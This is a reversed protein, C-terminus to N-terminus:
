TSEERSDLVRSLLRKTSIQLRGKSGREDVLAEFRGGSNERSRKKGTVRKTDGVAGGGLKKKTDPNSKTNENGRRRM